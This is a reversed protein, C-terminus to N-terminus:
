AALAPQPQQGISDRLGRPRITRPSNLKYRRVIAIWTLYFSSVVEELDKKFQQLGRPTGMKFLSRMLVGLNHAAASLLYRKRVKEIGTLWTRRAGGTECVHAFSREVRESRLRQLKRGRKSRTRRRNAVVAEQFEPPKDTWVCARPRQPEPIYTRYPTQERVNSLTEAGHYGKDAVADEIGQESGAESQNTQAQHLSDELTATDHVNAHYVEAALIMETDLDVVHEAKYALHTTGDKMRAIRADSDNPSTWV